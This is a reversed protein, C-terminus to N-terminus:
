PYNTSGKAIGTCTVQVLSSSIGNGHTTTDVRTLEVDTIEVEHTAQFEIIEERISNALEALDKQLQNM